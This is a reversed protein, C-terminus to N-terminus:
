QGRRNRFSQPMAGDISRVIRRRVAGLFWQIGRARVLDFVLRLWRWPKLVATVWQWHAREPREGQWYYRQVPYRFRGATTKRLAVCCYDYILGPYLAKYEQTLPDLFNKVFLETVLRQLTSRDQMHQLRVPMADFDIDTGPDADYTENRIDWRDVYCLDEVVYNNVAAIDLYTTPHINYFGHDVDGFAPLCFLMLGGPKLVDHMSQFNAGVNFIHEATGFNTALEFREPLRFARNMDRTWDARPDILDVSRYREIGFLRYFAPAGSPRPQDNDFIERMRTAVVAPANHRLGYREVVARSCHVLDQPGFEIISAGPSFLKKSALRGIWAVTLANIGM